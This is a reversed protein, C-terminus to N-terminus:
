LIQECAVSYFNCRMSMCTCRSGRKLIVNGKVASSRGRRRRRRMSLAVSSKTRHGMTEFGASLTMISIHLDTSVTGPSCKRMMEHTEARGAQVGVRLLRTVMRRRGRASLLRKIMAMARRFPMMRAAAPLCQPPLELAQQSKLHIRERRFLYSRRKTDM